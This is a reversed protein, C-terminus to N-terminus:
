TGFCDLDTRPMARTSSYRADVEVKPPRSGVVKSVIQTWLSGITEADFEGRIIFRVGGGELTDYELGTTNTIAM